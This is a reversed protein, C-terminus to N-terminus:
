TEDKAVLHILGGPAAVWFGDFDPPLGEIEDCRVVGADQLHRAATATDPTTVELWLEPQTMAAVKDLWLTMGGFEVVAGSDRHSVPLGLADEYFAVMEDFLHTPVKMAINTGAKFAPRTTM